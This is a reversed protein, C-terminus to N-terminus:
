AECADLAIRVQLDNRHAVEGHEGIGMDDTQRFAAAPRQNRAKQMVGIRLRAVRALRPASGNRRWREARKPSSIRCWSESSPRSRRSSARQMRARAPATWM